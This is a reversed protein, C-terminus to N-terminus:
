KRANASIFIGCASVIKEDIQIFSFYSFYLTPNINFQMIREIKKKSFQFLFHWLSDTESPVM